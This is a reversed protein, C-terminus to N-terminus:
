YRRLSREWELLDELEKNRTVLDQNLDKIIEDKYERYLGQRIDKFDYDLHEERNSYYTMGDKIKNRFNYWSDSEIYCAVDCYLDGLVEDCLSKIKDKFKDLILQAEKKGQETLEPYILEDSM